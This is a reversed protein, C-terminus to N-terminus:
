APRPPFIAAVPCGFGVVVDEGSLTDTDRLMAVTGDLRYVHVIRLSPNIVWILEIGADLYESIKEDVRYAIDHPSIVEVALDPAITFYGDELWSVPLRDEKIFSVDPKRAHDPLDPFCRYYADAGLVAGLSGKECHNELRTLLRAAVWSALNSVKIEVLKGDVLEFNKHDPLDLFDEITFRKPPAAISM